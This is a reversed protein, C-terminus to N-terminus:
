QRMQLGGISKDKRTRKLKQKPRQLVVELARYFSVSHWRLPRVTAPITGPSSPRGGSAACHAFTDTSYSSWFGKMHSGALLSDMRRRDGGTDFAIADVRVHPEAPPNECMPLPRFVM